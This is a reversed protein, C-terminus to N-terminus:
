HSIHDFYAIKPFNTLINRLKQQFKANVRHPMPRLPAAGSPDLGAPDRRKHEL